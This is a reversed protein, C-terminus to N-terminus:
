CQMKSNKIAKVLKRRSEEYTAELHKYKPKKRARKAARRAQICSHRLAAIHENWCYIPTIRNTAGEWPMTPNRTKLVRLMIKEAKEEANCADALGNDLAGRLLEQELMKWGRSNTERPEPRNTRTKTTVEWSIMRHDSLNFAENVKWNNNYCVLNLSTFILDVISTREDKEYTLTNGTNILFLYPSSM